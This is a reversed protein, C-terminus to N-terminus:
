EPFQDPDFYLSVLPTFGAYKEFTQTFGYKCFLYHAMCTEAKIAPAEDAGGSDHHILSHVMQVTERKGNVVFPTSTRRFTIRDCFLRVFISDPGISIVRDALVPAVHFESGNMMMMGAEGVFPLYIYRPELAIGQFKFYLKYMNAWTEAQDYTKKPNRRPQRAPTRRRTNIMNEEKPDCRVMRVFHLGEVTGRSAARIVEEIYQDVFPMQATALGKALIPNLKPTSEQMLRFLENDM